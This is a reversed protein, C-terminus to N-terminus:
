AGHAVATGEGPKKILSPADASPEAKKILSQASDAAQGALDQVQDVGARFYGRASEVASTAASQVSDVASGVKAKLQPVVAEPDLSAASQQYKKVGYYALGAGAAVAASVGLSLKM